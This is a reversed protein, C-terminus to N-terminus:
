ADRFKRRWRSLAADRTRSKPVAERFPLGAALGELLAMDEAPTWPVDPYRKPGPNRRLDM